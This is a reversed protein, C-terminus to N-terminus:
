KTIRLSPRVAVRGVGTLKWFSGSVDKILSVM